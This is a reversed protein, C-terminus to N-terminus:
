DNRKNKLESLINDIKRDMDKNRNIFNKFGKILKYVGIIIAFLVLFNVITLIVTIYDIEM